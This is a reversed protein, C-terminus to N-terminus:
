DRFTKLLIILQSPSTEFMELVRDVIDEEHFFKKVLNRTALKVALKNEREHKKADEKNDFIKGDSTQHAEIKIIAM